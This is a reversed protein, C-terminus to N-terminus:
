VPQLRRAFLGRRTEKYEFEDDQHPGPCGCEAYDIRCRPRNGEDDCDASYIVTKWTAMLGGRLRPNRGHDGQHDDM